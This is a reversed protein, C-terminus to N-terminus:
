PGSTAANALDFDSALMQFKLQPETTRIWETIRTYGERLRDVWSGKISVKLENRRASEVLGAAIVLFRRRGRKAETHKQQVISRVFLTWLNCVHLLLRTPLEPASRSKACFGGFGWQKKLEGVINETDSRKRYLDHIQWANASEPLDSVCVAFEHKKGDCFESNCAARIVSLLTRAFIVRRPSKWGTLQISGEPIQCSEYSASGLWEDEGVQCLAFRVLNTLRLEFPYTPGDAPEEHWSMIVDHGLGSDVRNLWIKREGLWRQAENMAEHWQTATVTDGSRFRYVPCLRIHAIVGLLAHYSRRGAKGPNYGIEAGDEHGSKPQVTSNWDMIIPDPLARRMPQLNRAIWEAGLSEFFRGERHDGVVAEM